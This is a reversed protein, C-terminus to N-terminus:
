NVILLAISHGEFVSQVFRDKNEATLHMNLLKEYFDISKRFDYVVLNVSGLHM